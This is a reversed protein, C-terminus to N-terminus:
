RTVEHGCWACAHDNPPGAPEAHSCVPWDAGDRSDQQCDLCRGNWERAHRTM